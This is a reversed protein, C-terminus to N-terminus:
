TLFTLCESWESYRYSLTPLPPRKKKKKREPTWPQSAINCHLDNGCCRLETENSHAAQCSGSEARDGPRSRVEAPRPDGSLDGLLEKLRQGAGRARGDRERELSLNGNKPPTVALWCSNNIIIAAISLALLSPQSRANRVKRRMPTM